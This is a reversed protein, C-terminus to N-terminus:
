KQFRKRKTSSSEQVIIPESSLSPDLLLDHSSKLKTKISITDITGEEEEGFSLLALNRKKAKKNTLPQTTKTERTVRSDVVSEARPVIDDFPNEEVKVDLITPPRKPRQNDDVKQDAMELVNFLTNGVIKGFITHKGQLEDARDLTIFFQSHGDAAAVIGRHSFRLRQHIELPLPDGSV